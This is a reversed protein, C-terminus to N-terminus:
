PAVGESDAHGDMAGESAGAESEGVPRARLSRAESMLDEPLAPLGDDLGFRRRFEATTRWLVPRGPGSGRGAEEILGEEELVLLSRESRVGRLHDVFSREVPEFYAIAALTELAATSLERTRGALAREVDQAYDPRTLLVWGARERTLMFGRERCAEEYIELQRELEMHTWGLAKALVDDEMPHGSAFLVAELRRGEETM